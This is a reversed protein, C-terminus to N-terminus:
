LYNLFLETLLLIKQNDREQKDTSVRLYGYVTM